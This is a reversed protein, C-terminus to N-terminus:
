RVTAKSEALATLIEALVSEIDEYVRKNPFRLIHLGRAAIIKDRLKDYEARNHHIDGGIEIVLGAAHCYFDAIFGDMIQQCRFHWGHLRGARLKEWLLSEAPTKAARMQSAKARKEPRHQGTVIGSKEM